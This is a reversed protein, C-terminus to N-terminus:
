RYLTRPSRLPSATPRQGAVPPPLRASPPGVPPAGVTVVRAQHVERKGRRGWVEPCLESPGGLRPTGRSM